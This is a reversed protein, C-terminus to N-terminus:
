FLLQGNIIFTLHIIKNSVHDEIQQSIFSINEPKSEDFKDHDMYFIYIHHICM